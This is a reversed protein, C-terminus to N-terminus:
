RLDRTAPKRSLNARRGGEPHITRWWAPVRIRDKRDIYDYPKIDLVPTRDLADLARVRLTTGKRELLEVVALGIPNPRARGRAAFAGVVPMAGRRTMRSHTLSKRAAEDLRDLWFLIIVHSYSEIGRLAAAYQRRVVVESTMASRETQLQEETAATRVYGIPRLMIEKDDEPM